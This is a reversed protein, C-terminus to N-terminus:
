AEQHQDHEEGEAEGDFHYEEWCARWRARQDAHWAMRCGYCCFKAWSRAAVFQAGCAKCRLTSASISTM